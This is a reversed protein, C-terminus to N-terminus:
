IREFLHFVLSGLKLQFIGIFNRNIGVCPIKHGTGFIEIVKENKPKEPDVLVWICPIENQVQVSLIQADKPMEILTQTSSIEYKWIIKNM